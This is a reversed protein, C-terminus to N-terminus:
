ISTNCMILLLKKVFHMYENQERSWCRRNQTFVGAQLGSLYFVSEEGDLLHM